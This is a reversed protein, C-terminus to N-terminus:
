KLREMPVPEAQVGVGLGPIRNSDDISVHYVRLVQHPGVQAAQQQLRINVHSYRDTLVTKAENTVLSPGCAVAKCMTLQGSGDDVLVAPAASHCLPCTTEQTM